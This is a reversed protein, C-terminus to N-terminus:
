SVGGGNINLGQSHTITTGWVVDYVPNSADPQYLRVRLGLRDQKEGAWQADVNVGSIWGSKILDKLCDEAAAKCKAPISDEAKSIYYVWLKSGMPSSQRKSDMNSMFEDGVWGRKDTQGYPLVDDKGARADTFLRLIVATHLTPELKLAYGGFAQYHNTGTCPTTFDHWPTAFEGVGIIQWDFAPRSLDTHTNIPRSATAIDLM